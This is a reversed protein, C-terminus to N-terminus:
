LKEIESKVEQWYVSTYNETVLGFKTLVNYESSEAEDIAILACQKANTKPFDGFQMALYKEVLEKAKEQPTM